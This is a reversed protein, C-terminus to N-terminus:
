GALGLADGGTALPRSQTGEGAHFIRKAIAAGLRSFMERAEDDADFAIEYGAARAVGERRSIFENEFIHPTPPWNWYSPLEDSLRRLALKERANMSSRLVMTPVVGLIELSTCLNKKLDRVVGVTNLTANVCLNDPMTPILIHTSACVANVTATMLRPPADVIVVDFNDQILQSALIKHTNFRIDPQNPQSLWSFLIRNEVRNLTYFAPFIRAKQFKPHLRTSHPLAREPSIGEILLNASFEIDDKEHPLVSDSLSGQYDFDILLVSKGLVREFYACLNAALTTKGVM